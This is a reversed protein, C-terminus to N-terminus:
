SSFRVSNALKSDMKADLEWTAISPFSLASIKSRHISLKKSDL